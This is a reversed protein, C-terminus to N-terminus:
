RRAHRFELPIEPSGAPTKRSSKQYPVRDEFEKVGPPHMITEAALSLLTFMWSQKKPKPYSRQQKLVSDWAPAHPERALM